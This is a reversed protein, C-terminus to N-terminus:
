SAPLEQRRRWQQLSLGSHAQLPSGDPGVLCAPLREPLRLCEQRPRVSLPASAVPNQEHYKNKQRRWPPMSAKEARAAEQYARSLMPKEVRAERADGPHHSLPSAANSMPRFRESKPRPHRHNDGASPHNPPASAPGKAPHTQAAPFEWVGPKRKSTQSAPSGDPLM